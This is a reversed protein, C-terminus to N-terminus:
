VSTLIAKETRAEEREEAKMERLAKLEEAISELANVTRVIMDTEFQTLM